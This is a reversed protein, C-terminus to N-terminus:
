GLELFRINRIYLTKINKKKALKRLKKDNTAIIGNEQEAAYLLIFDINKHSYAVERKKCFKAIFDLALRAVNKTKPKSEQMIKELEQIVPQIVILEKKQPVVRDLEHSLNLSPFQGLAMLFNTDLFVLVVKKDPSQPKIQYTERGRWYNIGM